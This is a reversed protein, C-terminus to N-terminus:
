RTYTPRVIAVLYPHRQAYSRRYWGGGNNQSGGNGPSTNGEFSIGNGAYVGVHDCFDGSVGPWKYYIFDGPKPGDHVRKLGYNGENAWQVVAVTYGSPIVVGTAHYVGTNAAYQCWSYGPRWGYHGFLDPMWDAYNPRGPAEHWGDHTLLWKVTNAAGQSERARIKRWGKVEKDLGRLAHWTKQGVQGDVELPPRHLQFRRVAAATKPGYEGDINLRQHWHERLLRQMERVRKGSSGLKLTHGNFTPLPHDPM